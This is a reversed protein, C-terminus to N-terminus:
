VDQEHQGPEDADEALIRYLERRTQELLREAALVQKPTGAHAIQMIGGGLRAAQAFMGRGQWAAAARTGARGWLGRRRAQGPWHPGLLAWIGRRDQGLLDGACRFIEVLGCDGEGAGWAAAAMM